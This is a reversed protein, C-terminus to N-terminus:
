SFGSSGTASYLNVKEIRDTTIQLTYLLLLSGIHNKELAKLSQRILQVCNVLGRRCKIQMPIVLLIFKIVM